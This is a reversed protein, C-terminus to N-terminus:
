KRFIKERDKYLINDEILENVQVELMAYGRFELQKNMSGCVNKWLTPFDVGTAESLVTDLVDDLFKETTRIANIAKEKNLPHHHAAFVRKIEGANILQKIKNLSNRFGRATQFGHFFPAALALLIDGTFFDGTSLNLFGVEELKHGPITITELEINNGPRFTTGDALIGDVNVPGDMLGLIEDRQEKSDPLHESPICFELYHTEMNEIWPIAGAAFLQANTNQKVAVNCGIHDAHVHTILVNRVNGVENCLSLVQERMGKIGTDILISYESGRLAYINLPVGPMLDLTTYFINNDLHM